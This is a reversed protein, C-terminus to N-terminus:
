DQRHVLNAISNKVSNTFTACIIRLLVTSSYSPKCVAFLRILDGISNIWNLLCLYRMHTLSKNLLLTSSTEISFNHHKAVYEHCILSARPFWQAQNRFKNWSKKDHHVSSYKYVPPFHKLYSIKGRASAVLIMFFVDDLIFNDRSLQDLTPLFKIKNHELFSRSYLYRWYGMEEVILNSYHSIEGNLVSTEVLSPSISTFTDLDTFDGQCLDASEDKAVKLMSELSIPNIQDDIDWFFIYDRSAKELAINRTAASGMNRSNQIFQISQFSNVIKTLYERSGDTSFDDVIIIEPLSRYIQSLQLEFHKLYAVKNYCTVIITVEHLSNM